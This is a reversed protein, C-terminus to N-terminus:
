QSWYIQNYIDSALGTEATGIRARKRRGSTRDGSIEEPLPHPGSLGLLQELRRNERRLRELELILESLEAATPGEASSARETGV